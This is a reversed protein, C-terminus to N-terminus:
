CVDMHLPRPQQNNSTSSSYKEDAEPNTAAKTTVTAKTLGFVHVVLKRTAM